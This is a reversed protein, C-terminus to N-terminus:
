FAYVKSMFIWTTRNQFSFSLRWIFIFYFLIIFGLKELPFEVHGFIKSVTAFEFKYNHTTKNIGLSCMSWFTVSQLASRLILFFLIINLLRFIFFDSLPMAEFALDLLLCPHHDDM